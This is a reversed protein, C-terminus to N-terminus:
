LGNKLIELYRELRGLYEEKLVATDGEASFDRKFGELVWRIVTLVEDRGHKIGDMDTDELLAEYMKNRSDKYRECLKEYIGGREASMAIMFRGERPHDIYWSIEASSYATIKELLGAPLRGAKAMDEGMAASVTEILYFYLDEKNEFYKFLSGKSIGCSKVIRNTSSNEYDYLAFEELAANIVRQRKAEELELFVKKPM